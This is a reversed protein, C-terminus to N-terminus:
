LILNESHLFRQMTYTGKAMEQDLFPLQAISGVHCQEFGLEKYAKRRSYDNSLLPGPKGTRGIPDARDWPHMFDVIYAHDKGEAARSARGPVQKAVIDSGGGGANVVVSLEPFDVGQKWCHTAIISHIKQNRFDDYIEKREKPKIARLTTSIIKSQDTEAHVFGTHTCYKHIRSMQDIFQLMCLTQLSEPICNLIDAIMRCSDDNSTWGNRLKADRTKYGSYSQLGCTPLPADIWYVTIPVLAGSKVGDQYSFTAVVPGYLGESVIDAGDFRGTPTASVGWKAAKTFMSIKEARGYSASTHMEDVVLIGVTKPDINDLSDITCCVVDDSPKHATGSMILGIERDPLWRKFEDWNKRNIDRDPCAFVCTPTGRSFLEGRDYARIVAAACATKGAGTAAQLIGGRSVLMRGVLDIQYPRLGAFAKAMNPKPMPTRADTFEFKIGSKRVFDLVRHAFGPMTYITKPDHEDVSYLDEFRAVVERRYHVFKIEKKFYRLKEVLGNCINRVELLGDRLVVKVPKIGSEPLMTNM